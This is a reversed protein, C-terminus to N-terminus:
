SKLVVSAVASAAPTTTSIKVKRLVFARRAAFHGIRLWSWLFLRM